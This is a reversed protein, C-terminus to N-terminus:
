KTTKGTKWLETFKQRFDVDGQWGATLMEPTIQEKTLLRVPISPQPYPKEDNFLRNLQDVAQWGAWETPTAVDAQQYGDGESIEKLNLKNGSWSAFVLKEPNVGASRAGNVCFPNVLADYGGSVYLTEGTHGTFASACQGEAKSAITAVSTQVTEAIECGPCKSLAAELGEGDMTVAEFSSDSFRIIKAQGGSDAVFWAGELEGMKRYDWVATADYGEPKTNAQASVVFIGDQQAKELGKQVAASPFAEVVVGEAGVSKARGIMDSATAPNGLSDMTMVKWGLAKGAEEVGTRTRKCGEAADNCSVYLIKHGAEAVPGEYPGPFETIPKTGEAVEKEAAAVVADAGGSESSTGAASDDSTSTSSGGGCASLAAMIVLAALV